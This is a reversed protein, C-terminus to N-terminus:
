KKGRRTKVQGGSQETIEETVQENKKVKGNYDKWESKPVYSWNGGKVRLEADSDNTRMIEGLERGKSQRILKICKM